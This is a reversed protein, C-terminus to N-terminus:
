TQKPKSHKRCILEHDQEEMDDYSQKRLRVPEDALDESKLPTTDEYGDYFGTKPTLPMLEDSVYKKISSAYQIAELSITIRKNPTKTDDCVNDTIDEQKVYMMYPYIEWMNSDSLHEVNSVDSINGRWEGNHLYNYVCTECYGIFIGRMFYNQRCKDCNEPGTRLIYDQKRVSNIKFQKHDLAWGIPFRNHYKYGNVVYYKTQASQFLSVSGILEANSMSIEM